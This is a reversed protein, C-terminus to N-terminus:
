GETQRDIGNRGQRDLDRFAYSFKTIMGYIKESGGEESTVMTTASCGGEGHM